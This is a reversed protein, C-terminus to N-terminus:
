LFAGQLITKPITIDQCSTVCFLKIIPAEVGLDLGKGKQIDSKVSFPVREAYSNINFFPVGKM